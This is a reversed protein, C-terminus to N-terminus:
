AEKALRIGSCQWRSQPTFPVRERGLAADRDPRLAAADQRDSTRKEDWFFAV